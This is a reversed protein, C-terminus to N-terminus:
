KEVEEFECREGEALGLMTFHAFFMKWEHGDTILVSKGNVFKEGCYSQKVEDYKLILWCDGGYINHYKLSWEDREKKLSLFNPEYLATGQILKGNERKFMAFLVNLSFYNLGSCGELELKQPVYGTLGFTKIYKRFDM